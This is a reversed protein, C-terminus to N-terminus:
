AGLEQLRERVWVSRFHREGLTAGLLDLAHRYAIAAEPKDGARQLFFGYRGLLHGHHWHGAPLVERAEAKATEFWARAEDIRGQHTYLWALDCADLMTEVHAGEFAQQHTERARKLWGEAELFRGLDILLAGLGAWAGAIGPVGDHPRKEWLRISEHFAAEAEAHRRTLRLLVGLNAHAAALSEAAEACPDSAALTIAQRLLPEAEAFRGQERLFLGLNNAQDARALISSEPAAEIVDRAARYHQEAEAFRGLQRLTSALELYVAAHEDAPIELRVCLELARQFMPLAEALRGVLLLCRGLELMAACRDPHTDGRLASLQELAAAFRAEAAAPDAGRLDHVGLEINLFLTAESQVDRAAAHALLTEVHAAWVDWAAQGIAAQAFTLAAEIMTPKAEEPLGNQVAAQVLPHVRASTADLSILSHRELEALARQLALTGAPAAAPVASLEAVAVSWTEAAAALARRPLPEPAFWALLELTARASPSLAGLALQCAAAFRGTSDVNSGATTLVEARYDGCSLHLEGMVAAAQELALPLGGLECSLAEADADAAVRGGSGRALLAAGEAPALPAVLIIEGGTADDAMRSTLLFHGHPLALLQSLVGGSDAGDIVALWREHRELWGLMRAARDAAAMQPDGPSLEADLRALEAEIKQGELWLAMDYDAAARHWYELALATKGVGPLGRLTVVCGGLGAKQFIGALRTLDHDHGAFYKTRAPAFYRRPSLSQGPRPILPRIPAAEDLVHAALRDAAADDLSSQALDLHPYRRLFGPVVFSEVRVTCILRRGEEWERHLGAEWEAATYVSDFYASSLVILLRDCWELGDNIQAVFSRTTEFEPQYRVEHGRSRLVRAMWEAPGLDASRFSIFIRLAGAM